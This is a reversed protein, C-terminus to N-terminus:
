GLWRGLDAASLLGTCEDPIMPGPRQIKINSLRQTRCLLDQLETRSLKVERLISALLGHGWLKMRMFPFPFLQREETWTSLSVAAVM